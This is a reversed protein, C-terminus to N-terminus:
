TAPDFATAPTAPQAASRSRRRKQVAVELEGAVVDFVVVVAALLPQARAFLGPADAFLEVQVLVRLVHAPVGLGRTLLRTAGGFLGCADFGLTQLYAIVCLIEQDTLGIPPKNIVPMGPNFGPVIYTDPAYLSQAFYEVDSLGPVRTAARAAVGDLDPLMYDLVIVQPNFTTWVNQLLVGLMDVLSGTTDAFMWHNLRDLDKHDRRWALKVFENDTSGGLLM